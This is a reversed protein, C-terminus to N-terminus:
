AGTRLKGVSARLVDAVPLHAGVVEGLAATAKEAWGWAARHGMTDPEGKSLNLALRLQKGIEELRALRAPQMADPKRALEARYLLRAIALLDRVIGRPLRDRRASFM